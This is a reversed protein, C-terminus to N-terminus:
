YEMIYSREVKGKLDPFSAELQTILFKSYDKDIFPSITIKKILRIPDIALEIHDKVSLACLRLEQESQHYLDKKFLCEFLSDRSEPAYIVEGLLLDYDRESKEISEVLERITTEIRCGIKQYAYSKWMLFDEYVIDQGNHTHIDYTWCSACTKYILERRIIEEKNRNKDEKNKAAIQPYLKHRFIEKHGHERLDSFSDRNSIYLIKRNLMSLLHGFEMYRFIPRNLDQISNHIYIDNVENIEEKKCFFRMAFMERPIINEIKDNRKM